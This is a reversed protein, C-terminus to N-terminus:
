GRPQLGAFAPPRGELFSTVGEVVDPGNLSINMLRDAEAKAQAFSVDLSAYVQEKIVGMAWPSCNAALDAAYAVAADVLAEPEVVRDVLGMALAEDALVVRASMLLDLARSPGVLRPLLWASGYEAILGRRAFSTTFKAKPAAFRIDCFLAEVLGLGAAAGNIAAVLPKRFTLPHTKPRRRTPLDQGDLLEVQQLDDMDAGVCFGRGAGTVVVARVDPDADADDLLTFYRDEMANNWANLKDPRNLTLLLVPGRQEALVTESAATTEPASM